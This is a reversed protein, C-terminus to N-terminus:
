VKVARLPLAWGLGGPRWKALWYDLSVLRGGGYFFLVALMILYTVTFEIGNNLVM